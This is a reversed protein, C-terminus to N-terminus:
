IFCTLSNTLLKDGSDLPRGSIIQRHHGSAYSTDLLQLGNANVQVNTDRDSSNIAVHFNKMNFLFIIESQHACLLVLSPIVIEIKSLIDASKLPDSTLSIKAKESLNNLREHFDPWFGNARM